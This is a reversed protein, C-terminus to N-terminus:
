PDTKKFFHYDLLRGRKKYGLSKLKRDLRKKKEPEFRHDIFVANVKQKHLNELNQPLCNCVGVSDSPLIYILRRVDFEMRGHFVAVKLDEISSLALHTKTKRRSHDHQKWIWANSTVIAALLVFFVWKKRLLPQALFALGILMAGLLCYVYRINQYPSIAILLLTVVVLAVLMLWVSIWKSPRYALASVIALVILGLIAWGFVDSLLFEISGYIRDGLQYSQVNEQIEVSRFDKTLDRLATPYVAIALGIAALSAALYRVFYIAKKQVIAYGIFLVGMVFALHVYSYYHTLLFLMALIAFSIYDGASPKNRGWGNLLTLLLGFMLAEQLLYAKHISVPYLWTVQLAFLCLVIVTTLWELGVKYCLALVLFFSFAWVILNFVYGSILSLSGKDIWSKILHMAYYYLPPHNSLKLNQQLSAFDVGDKTNAHLDNRLSDTDFWRITDSRLLAYMSEYQLNAKALTSVTDQHVASRTHIYYARLFLGSILICFILINRKM